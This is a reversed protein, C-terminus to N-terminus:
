GSWLLDFAFWRVLLQCYWTCCKQLAAIRWHLGRSYSPGRTCTCLGVAPSAQYLPHTLEWWTFRGHATMKTSAINGDESDPLPSNFHLLAIPKSGPYCFSVSSFLHSQLATSTHMADWLQVAIYESTRPARTTFSHNLNLNSHKTPYCSRKWRHKQKRTSEPM